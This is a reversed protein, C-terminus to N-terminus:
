NGPHWLGTEAPHFLHATTSLPAEEVVDKVKGTSLHGEDRCFVYKKKLL